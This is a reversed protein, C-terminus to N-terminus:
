TRLRTREENDRETCIRLYSACSFCVSSRSFLWVAPGKGRKARGRRNKKEREKEIARNERENSKESM